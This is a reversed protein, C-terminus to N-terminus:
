ANRRSASIIVMLFAMTIGLTGANSSPAHLSLKKDSHRQEAQHGKGGPHHTWFAFPLTHSEDAFPRSRHEAADGLHPLLHSHQMIALADLDEAFAIFIRFNAGGAAGDPPHFCALQHLRRKPLAADLQELLHAVHRDLRASARFNGGVQAHEGTTGLRAEVLERAVNGYFNHAAAYGIPHLRGIFFIGAVLRLLGLFFIPEQNAAHGRPRGSLSRRAGRLCGGSRFRSILGHWDGTPHDRPEDFQVQRIGDAFTHSRCVNARARPKLQIADLVGGAVLRLVQDGRRAPRLPM